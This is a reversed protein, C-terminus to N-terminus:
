VYPENGKAYVGKNPAVLHANEVVKEGNLFVAKIMGKVRMGEYPTYDVNAVQTAASISEEAHPDFLVIDADSGVQLCGKAPYLGYLKAARTSLLDCFKEISMHLHEVLYTYMLVVRHEVGPLGNPIKTFNHIGLDKQGKFNFSCHDTAITDIEGHLIAQTLAENDKKKRLPPALVYKGGEFNPLDYVHDDLLLYQPCTETTVSIGMARAKRVEQLGAESSLHVIHVPYNALKAIYCLRSIAEAEVTDPRVLAHMCLNTQKKALAEKTLENILTGNECHVGLVGDIKKIQQLCDLIEDDNTKLNDYAMYLKFSTIGLKKMELLEQKVDENWDSIAMHYRYNCSSKGEAMANWATYAEHLTMGKEQTAFDIITTTGGVVAAATGTEFTDATDCTGNNLQLHTHGDICGPLVFCGKADIMQDGSQAEITPEIKCIKTGEIALDAHEVGTAHVISGHKIIIM